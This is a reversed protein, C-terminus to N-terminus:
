SWDIIIGSKKTYQNYGMYVMIEGIEVRCGPFKEQYAPLLDELTPKYSGYNMVVGKLVHEVLHQTNGQRASGVVSQENQRVHNRIANQRQEEM